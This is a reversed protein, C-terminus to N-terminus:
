QLRNKPSQAATVTVRLREELSQFLKPLWEDWQKWNHDGPTIHFEYRLHRAELLSAFRRDPMDRQLSKSYFTVDRM